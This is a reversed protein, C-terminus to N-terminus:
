QVCNNITKPFNFVFNDIVHVIGNQLLMNGEVIITDNIYINKDLDLMTYLYKYIGSRHRTILSQIDSNTIMEMTIKKNVIHAMVIKKANLYDLNIFFEEPYKNKIHCNSPIFVTMNENLNDLIKEYKAKRVVYNFLSFDENNQILGMITFKDTQYGLNPRNLDKIDKTFTLMWSPDTGQMSVM